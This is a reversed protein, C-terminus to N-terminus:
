LVSTRDKVSVNGQHEAGVDISAAITRKMFSQANRELASNSLPRACKTFGSNSIVAHFGSGTARYKKLFTGQVNSSRSRRFIEQSVKIQKVLPSEFRRLFRQCTRVRAKWFTKFLRERKEFGDKRKPPSASLRMRVLRKQFQSIADYFRVQVPKRFITQVKREQGVTWRQRQASALAPFPRSGALAAVQRRCEGICLTGRFVISLRCTTRTDTALASARRLQVSSLARLMGSWRRTICCCNDRHAVVSYRWQREDCKKVKM